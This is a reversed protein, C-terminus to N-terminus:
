KHKISIQNQPTKIRRKPNKSKTLKSYSNQFNKLTVIHKLLNTNTIEKKEFKEQRKNEKSKHFKQLNIM